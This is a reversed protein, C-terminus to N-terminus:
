KRDKGAVFVSVVEGEWASPNHPEEEEEPDLAELRANFNSIVAFKGNMEPWFCWGSNMMKEVAEATSDATGQRIDEFVTKLSPGSAPPLAVYGRKTLEALLEKPLPEVVKRSLYIADRAILLDKIFRDRLEEATSNGQDHSVILCSLSSDEVYGCYLVLGKYKM